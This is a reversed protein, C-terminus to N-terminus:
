SSTYRRKKKLKIKKKKPAEDSDFSVKTKRKSPKEPKSAKKKGQGKKKRPAEDESSKVVAKGKKVKKPKVKAPASKQAADKLGREYEKREGKSMVHGGVIVGNNVEYEIIDGHGAGLENCLAVPVKGRTAGSEGEQSVRTYFKKINKAM